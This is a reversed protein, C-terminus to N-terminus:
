DFLPNKLANDKAAQEIDITKDFLLHTIWGVIAFVILGLFAFVFLMGIANGIGGHAMVKDWNFIYYLILLAVLISITSWIITRQRKIRKKACSKCFRVHYYTDSYTRTVVRGSIKTGVHESKTNIPIVTADNINFQKRCSPCRFYMMGLDLNLKPIEYNLKPIDYNRKPISDKNDSM